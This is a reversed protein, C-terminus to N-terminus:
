SVFCQRRRFVQHRYGTGCASVADSAPHAHHGQSRTLREHFRVVPPQLIEPAIHLGECRNLHLRVTVNQEHAKFLARAFFVGVAHLAANGHRALVKRFEFLTFM